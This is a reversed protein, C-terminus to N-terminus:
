YHDRLKIHLAAATAIGHDVLFEIGKMFMKKSPSTDETSLNDVIQNQHIGARLAEGTETIL